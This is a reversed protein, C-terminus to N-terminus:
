WHEVDSRRGGNALPEYIPTVEAAAKELPVPDVPGM